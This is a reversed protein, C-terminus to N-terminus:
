ERSFSTFVHCASIHLVYSKTVLPVYLQRLNIRVFRCDLSFHWIVCRWGTSVFFGSLLRVSGFAYCLHPTPGRDRNLKMAAQDIYDSTAVFL